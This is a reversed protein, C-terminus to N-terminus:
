YCVTVTAVLTLTIAQQKTSKHKSCLIVNQDSEVLSVFDSVAHTYRYFTSLQKDAEYLKNITLLIM